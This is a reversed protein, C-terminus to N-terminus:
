RKDKINMKTNSITLFIITDFILIFKAKKIKNDIIIKDYHLLKSFSYVTTEESGVIKCVISFIPIM